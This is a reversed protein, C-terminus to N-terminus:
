RILVEKWSSKEAGAYFARKVPALGHESESTDAWFWKSISSIHTWNQIDRIAQQTSERPHSSFCRDVEERLKTQKDPHLALLYVTHAILSSISDQGGLFMVVCQALVEVESLASREPTERRNPYGNTDHREERADMLLKLYDESKHGGKDRERIAKGALDKFCRIIDFNLLKINFWQILGPFLYIAILPLTMNRSFARKAEIVFKNTVDSHPKLKIGFSCRAIVDLGFNAYFTKVELDGECTRLHEATIRACDAIISSLEKWSSKEAGAYFARKVPALGHESESTDAWFWKSISSIHTWNQIDRIAQQTSERPTHFEDRLSRELRHNEAQREGWIINLVSTYKSHEGLLPITPAQKSTTHHSQSRATAKRARSLSRSHARSRSRAGPAAQKAKNVDPAPTPVGMVKLHALVKEMQAHLRKNEEHLRKNEQWMDNMM